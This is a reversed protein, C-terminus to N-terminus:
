GVPQPEATPVSPTASGRRRQRVTLLLAGFGFLAILMGAWGGVIPLATVVVIAALGVAVAGLARAWSGGTDPVALRGLWLGVVAHALFGLAVVLGLVLLGAALFGTAISLGALGGLTLLGFLVALLVAVIAIVVVGAIGAIAGALGVGLAPLPRHQLTDASSRTLRPALWLLLGAVLLLSVYRGVATAVLGGTTPTAAPTVRVQEEGAVTGNQDYRSASGLVSGGIAGASLVEGAGFVFDEGVRAQPALRVQGAVLLLDQGVDGDITVRGAAVRVDGEVSGSIRSSGAALMADGTVTGAVQIDGGSAVLDGEVRGDVRVTGGTVYLDHPVTENAPVLVTDGARFKGELSSQEQALAVSAGAVLGVLLVVAVVVARSARM